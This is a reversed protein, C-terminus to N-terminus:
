IESVNGVDAKFIAKFFVQFHALAQNIKITM